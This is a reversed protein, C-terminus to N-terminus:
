PRDRSTGQSTDSQQPSTDINPGIPVPNDPSQSSSMSTPDDSLTKDSSPSTTTQNSQNSEVIHPIPHLSLNQESHSTVDLETEIDPCFHLQDIHKEYIENCCKVKYMVTGVKSIITGKIWKDGRRYNRLWVQNGPYFIRLPKLVESKAFKEEDNVISRNFKLLSLRTNVKWNFLLESPSKGTQTHPTNRYFFLFRSILMKMPVNSNGAVIKRM